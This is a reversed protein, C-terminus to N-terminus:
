DQFASPKLWDARFSKNWRYRDEEEDKELIGIETMKEVTEYLMEGFPNAGWFVGKSKRFNDFEEDYEMLDLLCAVYYLAVDVDTWDNLLEQITKM